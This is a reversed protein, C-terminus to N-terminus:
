LVSLLISKFMKQSQCNIINPSRSKFNLVIPREICFQQSGKRPNRNQVFGREKNQVVSTPPQDKAWRGTGIQGDTQTDLTKPILGYSRNTVQYSAFHHYINFPSPSWHIVEIQSYEQFVSYVPFKKVDESVYVQDIKEAFIQIVLIQSNPFLCHNNNIKNISSSDM